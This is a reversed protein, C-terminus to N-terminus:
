AAKADARVVYLATDVAAEMVVEDVESYVNKMANRIETPTLEKLAEWNRTILGILQGIDVTEVLEATEDEAVEILMRVEQSESLNKKISCIPVGAGVGGEMQLGLLTSDAIDCIEKVIESAGEPRFRQPVYHEEEVIVEEIPDKCDKGGIYVEDVDYREDRLEKIMDHYEKKENSM